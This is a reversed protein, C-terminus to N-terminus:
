AANKADDRDRAVLRADEVIKRLRDAGRVLLFSAFMCAAAITNQGIVVASPIAGTFLMGSLLVNGSLIVFVGCIISLTAMVLMRVGAIYELVQLHLSSALYEVQKQRAERQVGSRSKWWSSVASLWADLRRKLGAAFLNVAVGVAVVSFWWSLSRLASVIEDM